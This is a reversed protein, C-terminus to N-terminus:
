SPTTCSTSATRPSGPLSWPCGRPPSTRSTGPSPPLFGGRIREAAFQSFSPPWHVIGSRQRKTGPPVLDDPRTKRKEGRRSPAARGDHAADRGDRDHPTEDVARARHRVAGGALAADRLLGAGGLPEGARCAPDTRERVLDERRRGERHRPRLRDEAGSSPDPRHRPRRPEEPGGGGGRGTRDGVGGQAVERRAPHRQPDARGAGQPRGAQRPFGRRGPAARRGQDAVRGQRQPLHPPHRGLPREGGADQPVDRDRGDGADDRRGRGPRAPGEGDRGARERRQGRRRRRVGRERAEAQPAHPLRDRRGGDPDEAEARARPFPVEPGRRLHVAGGGRPRVPDRREQPAGPDGGRAHPEPQPVPPPRDDRHLRRGRGPDARRDPDGAGEPRESVRERRVARPPPHHDAQGEVPLRGRRHDEGRKRLPVPGDQVGVGLDGAQRDPHREQHRGPRHRPPAVRRRDRGGNGPRAEDGRGRLPRVGDHHPLEGRLVPREGRAPQGPRRGHRDPMEQAARGRRGAEPGGAPGRLARSPARRNGEPRSHLRVHRVPPRRRLQPDDHLLLPRRRPDEPLRPRPAAQVRRRLLRSPVTRRPRHRLARERRDEPGGHRIGRARRPVGGRLPSNALMDRVAPDNNVVLVPIRADRSPEM